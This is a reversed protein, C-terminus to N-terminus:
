VVIALLVAQVLFVSVLIESTVLVLWVLFRATALALGTLQQIASALKLAMQLEFEFM